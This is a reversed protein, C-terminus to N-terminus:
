LDIRALLEAVMKESENLQVQLQEKEKTTQALMSRVVALLHQACELRKELPAEELQDFTRLDSM